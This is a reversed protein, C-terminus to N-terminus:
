TSPSKLREVAREVVKSVASRLVEEPSRHRRFRPPGELWRVDGWSLSAEAERITKKDPGLLRVTAAALRGKQRHARLGWVDPPLSVPIQVTGTIATAGATVLLDERLAKGASSAAEAALLTRLTDKPDAPAGPLAQPEITFPLVTVKSSPNSGLPASARCSLNLSVTLATLLCFRVLCVSIRM